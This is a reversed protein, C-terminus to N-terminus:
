NEEEEEEEEQDGGFAMNKTIEDFLLHQNVADTNVEIDVEEDSGEMAIKRLDNPNIEKNDSQIVIEKELKKDSELIEPEVIVPEIVEINKLSSNLIQQAMKADQEEPEFLDQELILMRNNGMDVLLFTKNEKEARVSYTLGINASQTNFFGIDNSISKAEKTTKSSHKYPKSDRLGKQNSGTDMNKNIRENSILKQKEGETIFKFVLALLALVVLSLGIVTWNEM